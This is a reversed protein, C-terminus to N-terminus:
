SLRGNSFLARSTEGPPDKQTSSGTQEGAAEEQAQSTPIDSPCTAEPNQTGASCEAPTTAHEQGRLAALGEEKGYVYKSHLKKKGWQWHLTAAVAASFCAQYLKKKQQQFRVHTSIEFIEVTSVSMFCCRRPALEKIPGASGKKIQGGQSGRRM